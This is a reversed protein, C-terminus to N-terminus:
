IRVGSLIAIETALLDLDDGGGHMGQSKGQGTHRGNRPRMRWVREEMTYDLAVEVGHQAHVVILPQDGELQKRKV